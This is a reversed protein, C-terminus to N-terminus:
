TLKQKIRHKFSFLLLVDWANEIPQYRYLLLPTISQTLLSSLRALSAEETSSPEIRVTLFCLHIDRKSTAASSHASM